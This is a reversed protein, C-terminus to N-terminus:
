FTRSNLLKQIIFIRQARRYIINYEIYQVTNYLLFMIHNKTQGRGKNERSLVQQWRSYMHLTNHQATSYHEPPSTHNKLLRDTM